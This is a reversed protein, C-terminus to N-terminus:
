SWNVSTEFTLRFEVGSIIIQVFDPKRTSPNHFTVQGVWCHCLLLSGSLSVPLACVQKGGMSEFMKELQVRLQQINNLLICAQLLRCCWWTMVSSRNALDCPVYDSCCPNSPCTLGTLPKMFNMFVNVIVLSPYEINLPYIFSIIHKITWM